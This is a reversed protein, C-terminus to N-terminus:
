EGCVGKDQLEKLIRYKRTVNFIYDGNKNQEYSSEIKHLEIIPINDVAIYEIDPNSLFKIRSLRGIDFFKNDKIIAERIINEEQAMIDKIFDKYESV